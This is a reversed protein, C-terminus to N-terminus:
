IEKTANPKLLMPQRVAIASGTVRSAATTSPVQSLPISSKLNRAAGNGNGHGATTVKTKSTSFATTKINCQPATTTKNSNTVAATM